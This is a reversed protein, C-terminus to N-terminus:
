IRRWRKKLRNAWGLKVAFAGVVLLVTLGLIVLFAVLPGMQAPQAAAFDHTAPGYSVPKATQSPETAGDASLRVVDASNNVIVHGNSHLTGRANVLDGIRLTAVLPAADGVLEITSDGSADTLVVISGDVSTVLGGVVLESGTGSAILSGSPRPSPHATTRPTSQPHPTSGPPRSTPQAAGLKIDAASRPVLQLRQDSATPYARKVIGTITAKRGAELATSAIASRELGVIPIGGGTLTLEARWADGDKHVSEVTGTVTVLRWELAQGIPASGLQAAEPQAAGLDAAQAATLQPAGYYTGVVGTVTLRRSPQTEFDAPLRVLIAATSDQITVRQADADLLGPRATVVGTISVTAGQRRLADAISLSPVASPAPTPSPAHTPTASPRPTPSPTPSPTPTPSPNGTASPRPTATPRPTPTPPQAVITVDSLDRPWLRYLGLRDGVLGVADILQGARFDAAVAGLPAHFFVRATGGSDHVILTVSGSSAAEVSDVTVSIRALLGETAEGLDAAALTRPAPVAASGIARVEAPTPRIELNGYPAALIGGVELVQGVEGSLAGAPLRVYIGGSEDQIAIVSDGLIRGAPATVVGDVLVRTGMPALRAEAIPAAAPTPTPSATPSATPSPTSTPTPTPTPTPSSTPTPSASPTPTPSASPTPSVPGSLVLVDAPDTVILAYHGQGDTTQEIQSLVCVLEVLNGPALDAAAVVVGSPLIFNLPGTGDDITTGSTVWAQVAILRSEFAECALGTAAWLPSPRNGPALYALDAPSALTLTTEGHREGIVGTATVYSGAPLVPWDASALYLAIGGSGYDLYATTGGDILGTSTALQGGVLVLPGGAVPAATPSPVTTPSPVATPAPLPAWSCMPTPTPAPTPSVTPTPSPTPTLTPLPTATPTPTVMIAPVAAAALAQAVSSSNVATDASNDNSDTTNGAAGGPKRELSSGAPPASGARTEVFPSAADGWSLSDIVSGGLTRLVLSGGTASLGGSYTGDAGAAYAGGSNAILVHRHAPVVLATWTQKRTVTAGSSTVYVLELGGLDLDSNAANYIEVFEDSASAAGTVVESVLLGTSVPWSVARVGVPACVLGIVAVLASFWVLRSSRVGTAM